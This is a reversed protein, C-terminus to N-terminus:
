EVLTPRGQGGNLIGLSEDAHIGGAGSLLVEKGVIMGYYDSAGSREVKTNPGYVVGYFEANGSLTCKSGMPFLQLDKPQLTHNVVTGGSMNVDGTVYITTSGSINISSGGSLSLKAWYYTGPPLDVVDNASLSFESRSNLAQKGRSSTPIHSNNNNTAADGPDVAPLNLPQNRPEIEGVVDASGTMSVSHGEGPHADGHIATSGSMTIPGDSCVHGREGATGARYAGLASNYSNTHSNGSLTVKNVGIILGCITPKVRATAQALADTSATGLVRGFFLGVPRGQAQSRRCYVRVANAGSEDGLALRTFRRTDDDWIGLQVDDDDTISVAAGAAFHLEAFRTAEARAADPGHQLGAAGALAASDAAAQLQTRALCVYGIDVAFAVMGLLAVLLVVFLVLTAGRRPEQLSRAKM